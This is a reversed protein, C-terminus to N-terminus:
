AQFQRRSGHLRLRRRVQRHAVQKGLSDGETRNRGSCKCIPLNFYRRQGLLLRDDYQGKRCIGV